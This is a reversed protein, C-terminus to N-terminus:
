VATKIWSPYGGIMSCERKMYVSDGGPAKGGPERLGLDVRKPAVRPHVIHDFVTLNSRCCLGAGSAASGSFDNRGAYLPDIGLFRGSTVGNYRDDIGSDVQVM